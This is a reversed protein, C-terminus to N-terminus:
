RSKQPPQLSLAGDSFSVAANTGRPITDLPVTGGVNQLTVGFAGLLAYWTKLLSKEPYPDTYLLTNGQRILTVFGRETGGILPYRPHFGILAAEINLSSQSGDVQFMVSASRDEPPIVLATSEKAEGGTEGPRGSEPPIRISYANDGEHYISLLPSRGEAILPFRLFSYGLWVVLLGGALILPYAVTRPFFVALAFVPVCIGAALFLGGSSFIDGFSVMIAASFATLVGSCVFFVLTLRRNRSHVTISKRFITLMYGLAIGLLAGSLWLLDRAASFNRVDM